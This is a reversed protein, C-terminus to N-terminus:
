SCLITKIINYAKELEDLPVYEDKSHAKNISGPGFVLAPIASASYFPAHTGFAANTFLLQHNHCTCADKLKKAIPSNQEIHFGNSCVHPSSLTAGPIKSVLKTIEDIVEEPNEGPILRRDIEISASPPITNVTTGGKILGVSLSPSGLVPHKKIQIQKHYEELLLSIRSIDYIANHGLEPTSSHCALGKTSINFRLVGKHAHLAKLETPEGIIAFDASIGDKAVEAIGGFSFEEDSCGIILINKSIQNKSKLLEEVAAIYIAMNSKTDCSGRGFLRNDKINPDFAKISMELHSVTDLHADLAVTETKGLDLFAAFSPHQPNKTYKKISFGLQSLNSCLFDVISAESYIPDSTKQGFSNVSPIAVLERLLSTAPHM